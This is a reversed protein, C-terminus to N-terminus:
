LFKKGTAKFQTPTYGTIRKFYRSFYNNDSFGTQQAISAISLNSNLLLEKAFNLRNILIYQKPSINFEKRFKHRFHEASCGYYEALTNVNIDVNSINANIYKLVDSFPAHANCRNEESDLESLISYFLAKAQLSNNNRFAILINYFLRITSAKCNNYIKADPLLPYESTFFICIGDGPALYTKNYTINDTKEQPLYLVSGNSYDMKTSNYSIETRGNLKIGLQYFNTEGFAYIKKNLEYENIRASFVRLIQINNTNCDKFM